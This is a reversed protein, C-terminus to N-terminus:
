DKGSMIHGYKPYSPKGKIGLYPEIITFSPLNDDITLPYVKINYKDADFIKPNKGFLGRTIGSITNGEAKTYHIFELKSSILKNNTGIEEGYVVALKGQDKNALKMSDSVASDLEIEEDSYNIDTTKTLASNEPAEFVHVKGSQSYIIFERNDDSDNMFDPMVMDGDFGGAQINKHISIM